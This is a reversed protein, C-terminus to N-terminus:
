KLRAALTRILQFPATRRAAIQVSKCGPRRKCAPEAQGLLAFELGGFAPGATHEARATLHPLM